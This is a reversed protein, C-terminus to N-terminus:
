DLVDGLARIDHDLEAPKRHAQEAIVEMQPRLRRRGLLGGVRPPGVDLSADLREAGVTRHEFAIKWGVLALAAILHDEVGELAEGRLVALGLLSRQEGLGRRLEIPQLQCSPRPATRSRWWRANRRRLRSSPKM